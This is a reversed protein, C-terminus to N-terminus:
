FTGNVNAWGGGGEFPGESALNYVLMIGTYDVFEKLDLSAVHARAAAESNDFDANSRTVGTLVVQDLLQFQLHHKNWSMDAYYEKTESLTSELSSRSYGIQPSEGDWWIPLVVYKMSVLTLDESWLSGETKSDDRRSWTDWFAELPNTSTVVVSNLRRSEAQQLLRRRQVSQREVTDIGTIVYPDDLDELTFALSASFFLTFLLLSFRM